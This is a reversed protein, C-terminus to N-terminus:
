RTAACAAQLLQQDATMLKGVWACGFLQLWGVMHKMSCQWLWPRGLAEPTMVAAWALMQFVGSAETTHMLDSKCM